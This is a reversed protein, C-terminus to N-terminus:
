SAGLGVGLWRQAMEYAPYYICGQPGIWAVRMGAGRMLSRIGGSQMAIAVSAQWVPSMFVCGSECWIVRTSCM